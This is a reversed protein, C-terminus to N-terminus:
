QPKRSSNKQKLFVDTKSSSHPYGAPKDREFGTSPTSIHGSVKSTDGVDGKPLSSYIKQQNHFLNNMYSSIVDRFTVSLPLLPM